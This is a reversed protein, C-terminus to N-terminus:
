DCSAGALAPTARGVVSGVLYRDISNWSRIRLHTSQPASNTQVAPSCCNKASLFKLFSGFRQLDHLVFRADRGAPPGPPPARSRTSVTVVHEFQPLSVVTGKLGVWPRGTNQLSHKWDRLNAPAPPTYAADNMEDVSRCSRAGPSSHPRRARAAAAGGGAGPGARAPPPLQAAPGGGRPRAE